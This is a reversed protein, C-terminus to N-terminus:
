GRQPELEADVERRLQDLYAIAGPWSPWEVPREYAVIPEGIRGGDHIDIASAGAAAVLRVDGTLLVADAAEALVLYEADYGSLGHAEVADIMALALTRAYPETRVGLQELDYIAALIESGRWSHRRALVNVLEPWFITPVLIDDHEEFAHEARDGGPENRLYAIAASADVVLTPM